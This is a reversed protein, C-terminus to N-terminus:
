NCTVVGAQTTCTGRPGIMVGSPQGNLRAGSSDWCGGTDCITATAPRPIDVPPPPSMATPRDGPIVPSAPNIPNVRVRPGDLASPVSGAGAVPPPVTLPAQAARGTSATDAERGFCRQAVIGRTKEVQLKLRVQDNPQGATGKPAADAMAADFDRRAGECAPSKLVDQAHAVGLFSAHPVDYIMSFFGVMACGVLLYQRSSRRSHSLERQRADQSARREAPKRDVRLGSGSRISFM